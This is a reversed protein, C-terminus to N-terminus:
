KRCVQCAAIGNVACLLDCLLANQRELLAEVAELSVGQGGCGCGCARPAPTPCTYRCMPMDELAALRAQRAAECSLAPAPTRTGKEVM